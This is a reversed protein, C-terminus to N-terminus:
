YFQRDPDIQYARLKRYLTSRSIGIAKAAHTKSGRHRHLADLIASLELEEISTLERRRAFSQLSTPLDDLGIETGPVSSVLGRITTDLQRLNGPWPSRTLVRSAALSFTMSRGNSHMRLLRAASEPIDERRDRLPAIHVRGIGITDVLTQLDDHPNDDRGNTTMTAIVRPGDGGVADLLSSAAAASERTLAELHRIVLTHPKGMLTDRLERTVVAPGDVAAVAVDVVAVEEPALSGCEVIARALTSKGVGAEGEIVMSQGSAVLRSATDITAALSASTGPLAGNLLQPTSSRATMRSSSHKRPSGFTVIVGVVEGDNDITETSVVSFKERFIDFAADRVLSGAAAARVYEWLMAQDVDRLLESAQLSAVFIERGVAAIPAASRKSARLYGDLLLREDVSAHELMRREVELATSTLLPTLLPHSADSKCSLTIVGELRRTIPNHIPAGVCTFRSLETCMHEPGIIQVARGAEVVTGVGNTGVLDEAVTYGVDSNVSDLLPVISRDAIWRRLVVSNHDALLLGTNLGSIRETLTTLVPDAAVSLATRNSSIVERKAIANTAGCAISRHWSALVDPRVHQVLHDPIVGDTLVAERANLVSKVDIM